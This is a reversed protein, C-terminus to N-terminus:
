LLQQPFFPSKAIQLSYPTKKTFSTGFTCQLANFVMPEWLTYWMIVGFWNNTSHSLEIGLGVSIHLGVNVMTSLLKVPATSIWFIIWFIHFMPVSGKNWVYYGNLNLFKIQMLQNVCRKVFIFLMTSPENCTLCIHHIMVMDLAFIAWIAEFKACPQVMAHWHIKVNPTM